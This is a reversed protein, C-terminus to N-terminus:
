ILIFNKIYFFRYLDLYKKFFELDDYFVLAVEWLNARLRLENTSNVRAYAACISRGDIRVDHGLKM